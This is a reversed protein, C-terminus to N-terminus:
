FQSKNKRALKETLLDEYFPKLLTIRCCAVKFCKVAMKIQGCGRHIITIM